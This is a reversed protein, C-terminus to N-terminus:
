TFTLSLLRVCNGCIVYLFMCFEPYNPLCLSYRTLPNIEQGRSNWEVNTKSDENIPNAQGATVELISSHSELVNSFELLREGISPNMTLKIVDEIEVGFPKNFAYRVQKIVVITSILLGISIAFQIIISVLIAYSRRKKHLNLDRM